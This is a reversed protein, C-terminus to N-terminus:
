EGTISFGSGNDQTSFGANGQLFIELVRESSMGDGGPPVDSIKLRDTDVGFERLSEVVHDIRALYLPEPTKGRRVSIEGFRNSFHSALVRLESRGLDNLDASDLVFHYPFLTRQTIIANRIAEDRISNHLWVNLAPRDEDITDAACGNLFSGIAMSALMFILFKM